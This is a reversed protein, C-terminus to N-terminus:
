QDCNVEIGVPVSSRPKDEFSVQYTVGNEQYTFGQELDEFVGEDDDLQDHIIIGHQNEIWAEDNYERENSDYARDGIYVKDGQGLTITSEEPLCGETAINTEQTHDSRLGSALIGIILGGCLATIALRGQGGRSRELGDEFGREYSSGVAIGISM